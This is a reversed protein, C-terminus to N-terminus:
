LRVPSTPLQFADYIPRMLQRMDLGWRRAPLLLEHIVREQTPGTSERERGGRGGERIAENEGEVAWADWEQGERRGGKLDEGVEDRLHRTVGHTGVDLGLRTGGGTSEWEKGVTVIGRREDRWHRTILIASAKDGQGGGGRRRRMTEDGGEQPGRPCRRGSGLRCIM